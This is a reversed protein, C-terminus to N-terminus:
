GARQHADTTAVPPTGGSGDVPRAARYQNVYDEVVREGIMGAGLGVIHCLIMSVLAVTLIHGGPNEAALGAVVAVAFGSLGFCSAILRAPTGVALAAERRIAALCRRVSLLALKITARSPGISAKNVIGGL